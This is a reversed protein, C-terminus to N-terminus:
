KLLVVGILCLATFAYYIKMNSDHKGLALTFGSICCFLLLSVVTMILRLLLM